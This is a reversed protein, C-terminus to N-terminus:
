SFLFNEAFKGKIELKKKFQEPHGMFTSGDRFSCKEQVSHVM